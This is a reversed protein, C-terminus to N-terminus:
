AARLMGEFRVASEVEEQELDMWSCVKRVKEREARYLDYVNTTEIGRGVITPAGFAVVPDVVVHEDRGLPYWREAFGTQVHFDLCDAIQMIIPAIAWQGGSLLHLLADGRDQLEVYVNRGDTWFRKSAWHEDGLLDQAESLARRLKQISIGHAVFGKIFLLDVLDLFSAFPVNETQARRVVPRQRRRVSVQSKKQACHYQCGRLWRRVREPRLGVLRAAFVPSYAPEDLYGHREVTTRVRGSM